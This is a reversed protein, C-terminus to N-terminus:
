DPLEDGRTERALLTIVIGLIVLALWFVAFFVTALIPNPFSGDVNFWAVLTSWVGMLIGFAIAAVGINRVSRRLRYCHTWNPTLSQPATVDNSHQLTKDIDCREESNSYPSNRKM